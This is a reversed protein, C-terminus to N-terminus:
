SEEVVIYIGSTACTIDLFGEEIGVEARPARKSRRRRPFQARLLYKKLNRGRLVVVIIIIKQWQAYMLTQVLKMIFLSCIFLLFSFGM